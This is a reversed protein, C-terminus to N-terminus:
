ALLFETQLLMAIGGGEERESPSIIWDADSFAVVALMGLFPPMTSLGNLLRM